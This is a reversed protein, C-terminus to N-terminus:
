IYYDYIVNRYNEPLENLKQRIPRRQEKTLIETEVGEQHRMVTEYQVTNCCRM